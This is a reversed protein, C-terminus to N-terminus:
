AAAMMRMKIDAMDDVLYCQETVRTDAHGLMISVLKVDHTKRFLESAFTKRYVHGSTRMDM